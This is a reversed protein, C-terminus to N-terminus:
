THHGIAADGQVTMGVQGEVPSPLLVTAGGGPGHRAAPTHPPRPMDFIDTFSALLAQLLDQTTSLLACQSPIGGMGTWQVMRGHRWFSMSLNTFNWLITRLSRLWHVGLVTDISDLPLVYCSIHFDEKDITIPLKPYVGGCRIRDGNAVKVSLSPRLDVSLGLQMAVEEKIFTHTSGTDVLAVLSMGSISVQLKMMESVDIGTLAHLSIGLEEVAAEEEVRDDLELLFVGKTTCKHDLSFKKPCYYCENNARKAALEEAILRRFRPKAPGALKNAAV